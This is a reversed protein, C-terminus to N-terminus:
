TEVKDGTELKSSDKLKRPWLEKTFYPQYIGKGQRTSLPTLHVQLGSIDLSILKCLIIHHWQSYKNAMVLFSSIPKDTSNLGKRQCAM